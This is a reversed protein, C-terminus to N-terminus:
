INKVKIRLPPPVIQPRRLYFNTNYFVIRCLVAQTEGAPIAIRGLRGAIVQMPLGFCLMYENKFISDSNRVYPQHLMDNRHAVAQDYYRSYASHEGPRIAPAPSKTLHGYLLRFLKCLSAQHCIKPQEKASGFHACPIFPQSPRLNGFRHPDILRFPDNSSWQNNHRFAKALLPPWTPFHPKPTKGPSEM